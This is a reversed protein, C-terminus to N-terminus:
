IKPNKKIWEGTRQMKIAANLGDTNLTIVSLAPSFEPM